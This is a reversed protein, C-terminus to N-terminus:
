DNLHSIERWKIIIAPAGICKREDGRVTVEGVWAQRHLEVIFPAVRGARIARELNAPALKARALSRSEISINLAWSKRPCSSTTRTALRQFRGEADIDRM